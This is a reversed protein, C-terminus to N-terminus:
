LFSIGIGEMNFKYCLHQKTIQVCLVCLFLMFSWGQAFRSTSQDSSQTRGGRPLTEAAKMKLLLEKRRLEVAESFDENIYVNTGKLKKASSCISQRDKFWWLKVVNKWKGSCGEGKAISRVSERPM